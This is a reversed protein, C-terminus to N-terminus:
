SADLISSHVLSHVLMNSLMNFAMDSSTQNCLYALIIGVRSEETIKIIQWNSFRSAGNKFALDAVVDFVVDSLREFAHHIAAQGVPQKLTHNLM